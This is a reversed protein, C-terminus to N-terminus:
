LLPLATVGRTVTIFYLPVGPHASEWGAHFSIKRDKLVTKWKEWLSLDRTYSTSGRPLPKDPVSTVRPLPAYIPSCNLVKRALQVLQPTVPAKPSRVKMNAVVTSDNELLETLPVGLGDHYFFAIEGMQKSEIWQPTYASVLHHYQAASV